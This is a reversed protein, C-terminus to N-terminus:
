GKWALDRLICVIPIFLIGYWLAGSSMFHPLMGFFEPAVGIRPMFAVYPPFFIFWFAVSGVIAIFTLRVWVTVMTAAKLSITILVITYVAEGVLWLNSDLGDPLIGGDDMIWTMIYYMLL